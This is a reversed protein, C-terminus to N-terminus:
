DWKVSVDQTEIHMGLPVRWADVCVNWTESETAGPGIPAPLKRTSEITAWDVGLAGIIHTGLTVTGSRVPTGGTNRFKVTVKECWRDEMAKRVPEGVLLKAPGAPASSGPPATPTGSGEPASGSGDGGPSTQDPSGSSGSGGPSNGEAAGSGAGSAPGQSGDQGQSGKGGKGGERGKGGAGPAGDDEGELPVMEVKGTPAVAHGPTKEPTAGAAGM